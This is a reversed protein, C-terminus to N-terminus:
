PSAQIALYLPYQLAHFPLRRVAEIMPLDAYVLVTDKMDTVNVGYSELEDWLARSDIPGRIEVFLHVM